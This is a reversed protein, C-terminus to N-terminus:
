RCDAEIPGLEPGVVTCAGPACNNNPPNCDGRTAVRKNGGGDTIDVMNCCDNKPNPSVIYIEDEPDEEPDLVWCMCVGELVLNSAFTAGSLVWQGPQGQQAPRWVWEKYTENQFGSTWSCMSNPGDCPGVPCALTQGATGPNAMTGPCLSGTAAWATAALIGFVLVCGAVVIWESARFM